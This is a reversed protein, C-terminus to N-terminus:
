TRGSSQTPAAAPTRREAELGRQSLCAQVPELHITGEYHLGLARLRDVVYNAGERAVDAFPCPGRCWM